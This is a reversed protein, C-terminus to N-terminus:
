CMVISQQRISFVKEVEREYVEKLPVGMDRFEANNQNFQDCNSFILQIDTLFQRVTIYQQDLLQDTIKDLWMPTVIKSSYGRVHICPDKAFIHDKDANYLSLLLYHWQLMYKSVPCMLTVKMQSLYMNWICFTCMWPGDDELTSQDVRPLHCEPHFSHPCRDCMMLGGESRCVFCEDDNKQSELAQPDPQCLLCFCQESNLHLMHLQRKM